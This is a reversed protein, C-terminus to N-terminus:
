QRPLAQVQDVAFVKRLSPVAAPDLCLCQVQVGLRTAERVAHRADEVLYRPDHVDVDHPQGDTLLLVRRPVSGTHLLLHTAHRLAAGLRTSLRSQLGMLRAWCQADLPAHFDKVRQYHVAHRGDSFFSHIACHTGIEGLAQTYQWAANRALAFMSQQQGELVRTTSASADLLLLTSGARAIRHTRRYVQQEPAQGSRLAVQAHVLADWDLEDGDAQRPLHARRTPLLLATHKRMPLPPTPDQAQHPTAPLALADLVTAWDARYMPVLRDWERYRHPQAVLVASAQGSQAGAGQPQASIDHQVDTRNPDPLWLTHNDDRYSPQARYLRANFQLRMQGVDNGLRTAALRLAHPGTLALASQTADTFFLARGKVVWPHPDAYQADLLARALRRMLDEFGPPQTYPVAHFQLWLRHLGSLEQCALWEVRADELLGVLAQSAPRLGQPNFQHHSYAMHAAAHASTAQLWAATPLHDAAEDPSNIPAVDTASYTAADPAIRAVRSPLHLGLTSLFTQQVEKAAIDHLPVTVNWLSRLYPAISSRM